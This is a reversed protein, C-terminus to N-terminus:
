APENSRLFKALKNTEERRIQNRDPFLSITKNKGSDEIERRCFGQYAAEWNKYEAEKSKAWLRM